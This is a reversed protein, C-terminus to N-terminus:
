WIDEKLLVQIVEIQHRLRDREHVVNMYESAQGKSRDLLKHIIADKEAVLRSCEEEVTVPQNM